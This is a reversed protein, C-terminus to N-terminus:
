RANDNLCVLRRDSRPRTRYATLEMQFGRRLHPYCARRPNRRSRRAVAGDRPLDNHLVSFQRNDGGFRLRSKKAGDAYAFYAYRQYNGRRLRHDNGRFRMFFGNDIYGANVAINVGLVAFIGLGVADFVNFFGEFLRKRKKDYKNKLLFMVVFVALSTIMAAALYSYNEFMVPPTKGIILDRVVGGGLATVVGLFIVGFMDLKREIAIMAGSIAFAITGIIEVVYIVTEAM